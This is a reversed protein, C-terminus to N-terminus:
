HDSHPPLVTLTTDKPNLGFLPCALEKLTDLVGEHQPLILRHYRTMSPDLSLAFESRNPTYNDIEFVYITANENIAKM